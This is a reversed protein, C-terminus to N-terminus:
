SALFDSVPYQLQRVFYAYAQKGLPSVHETGQQIRFSQEIIEAQQEVSFDLLQKGEWMATVLGVEGGYDYVREARHARWALALYIAGFHQFQWVHVLEHVLVADDLRQHFNIIEFTVFAEITKHRCVISRSDIWINTTDLADGFVSRALDIERESLKRHWPKLVRMLRMWGEGVWLVDATYCVADLLWALVNRALFPKADTARRPYCLHHWLRRVRSPYSLGQFKKM